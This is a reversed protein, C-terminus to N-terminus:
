IVSQAHLTHQTHTHTVDREKERVVLAQPNSSSASLEPYKRRYFSTLEPADKYSRARDELSPHRDLYDKNLLSSASQDGHFNGVDWLIMRKSRCWVSSEVSFKTIEKLPRQFAFM